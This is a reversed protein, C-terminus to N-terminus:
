KYCVRLVISVFTDGYKAETQEHFYSAPKSTIRGRVIIIIRLIGKM